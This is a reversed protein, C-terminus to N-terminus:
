KEAIYFVDSPHVMALFSNKAQYLRKEADEKKEYEGIISGAVMVVYKKM